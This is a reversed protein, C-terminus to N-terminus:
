RSNRVADVGPMGIAGGWDGSVVSIGDVLVANSTYRGGAMAFRNQNQGGGRRDQRWSGSTAGVM